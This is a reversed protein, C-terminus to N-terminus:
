ESGNVIIEYTHSNDQLDLEGPVTTLAVVLSYRGRIPLTTVPSFGVLRIEGPELPELTITENLLSDAVVRDTSDLLQATVVLDSERHQGQNEVAVLLRVGAGSLTQLNNLPPDFDVGVIALAHASPVVTAVPAGSHLIEITPQCASALLLVIPLSVVTLGRGVRAWRKRFPITEFTMTNEHYGTHTSKDFHWFERASIRFHDGSVRLARRAGQACWSLSCM